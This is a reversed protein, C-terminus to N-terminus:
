PLKLPGPMAREAETALQAEHRHIFIGCIIFSVITLIALVIAIPGELQKIGLGLAYAGYGYSVAWLAAGAINAVLFNRWPMVNCGAFV